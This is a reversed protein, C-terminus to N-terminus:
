MEWKKKQLSGQRRNKPMTSAVKSREKSKTKVFNWQIFFGSNEDANKFDHLFM